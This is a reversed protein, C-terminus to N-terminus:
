AVPPETPVDEPRDHIVKLRLANSHKGKTWMHAQGHKVIGYAYESDTLERDGISSQSFNIRSAEVPNEISFRWKHPAIRTPHVAKGPYHKAVIVVKGDLHAPKIGAALDAEVNQEVQGPTLYSVHEAAAQATEPSVALALAGMSLAVPMIERAHLLYNGAQKM